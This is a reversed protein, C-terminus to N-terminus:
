LQPLNNLGQALIIMAETAARDAEFPENAEYLAMIPKSLRKRLKELDKGIDRARWAGISAALPASKLREVAIGTHTDLDQLRNLLERYAEMTPKEGEPSSSYKSVVKAIEALTLRADDGWGATLTAFVKSEQSVQAQAAPPSLLVAALLLGVVGLIRPIHLM